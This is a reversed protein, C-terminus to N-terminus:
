KLVSPIVLNIKGFRNYCIAELCDGLKPNYNSRNCVSDSMFFNLVSVGDVKSNSDDTCHVQFGNVIRKKNSGEVAFSFSKDQVGVIKFM